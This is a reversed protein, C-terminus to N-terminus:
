IEMLLCLLDQAAQDPDARNTFANFPTGILYLTLYFKLTYILIKIFKYDKFVNHFDNLLGQFSRSNYVFKDTHVRYYMMHFSENVQPIQNYQNRAM